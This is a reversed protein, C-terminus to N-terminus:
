EVGMSESGDGAHAVLAGAPLALIASVESRVAGFLLPFQDVITQRPIGASYLRQVMLKVAARAAQDIWVGRGTTPDTRGTLSDVFADVPDVDGQLVWEWPIPGGSVVQRSYGLLGFLRGRVPLPLAQPPIAVLAGGYSQVEPPSGMAADWVLRVVILNTIPQGVVNGIDSM